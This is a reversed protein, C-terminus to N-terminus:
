RLQPRRSRLVFSVTALIPCALTVWSLADWAGDGFLASLLGTITITAFIAPLYFVQVLTRQRLNKSM